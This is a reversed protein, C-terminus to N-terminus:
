TINSPQSNFRRKIANALFTWSVKASSSYLWGFLWKTTINTHSEEILACVSVNMYWCCCYDKEPNYSNILLRCCDFKVRISNIIKNNLSNCWPKWTIKGQQLVYVVRKCQHLRRVGVFLSLFWLKFSNTDRVDWINKATNQHGFQEGGGLDIQLQGSTRGTVVPTGTQTCRHHLSLHHPSCQYSRRERQMSLCGGGELPLSPYGPGTKWVLSINLPIWKVPFLPTCSSTSVRLDTRAWVKLLSGCRSM